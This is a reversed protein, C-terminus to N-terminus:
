KWSKGNQSTNKNSEILKITLWFFAIHAGIGHKHELGTQGVRIGSEHTRLLTDITPFFVHDLWAYRFPDCQAYLALVSVEGGLRVEVSRSFAYWIAM